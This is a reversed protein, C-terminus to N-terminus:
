GYVNFYKLGAIKNLLGAQLAWLDFAQKSRGYANLPQLKPTISDNDDYGLSGDGYTAASSAYIFRAGSKLSWECLERTYLFNNDHLYEEDTQMTSSCAGLHFVCDVPPICRDRLLRRFDTKELYETYKLRSLNERKGPHDLHDVVIIEGCGRNNLAKVLNSGILGAGGTVIFRKDM